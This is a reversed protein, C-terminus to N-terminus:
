NYKKKIGFNSKLSDQSDYIAFISPYGLKDAEQDLFEPLFLTFLEWGYTKARVQVWVMLSVIKMEHAAKNTFTLSLINFADIGQHM